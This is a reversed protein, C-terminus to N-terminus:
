VYFPNFADVGPARTMKRDLSIVGVSTFRNLWHKNGVWRGPEFRITQNLQTQVSQIFGQVPTFIRIYDARNRDLESANEFENLSQVGNSDYDNWVYVGNGTQVQLYSFERRQEQGTGTQVFTNLGVAKKFLNFSAEMRAQFTNEANLSDVSFSLSRYTGTVSIFDGQKLRYRVNLSYNAANTFTQLVNRSPQDDRRFNADLIM